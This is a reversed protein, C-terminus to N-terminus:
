FGARAAKADLTEALSRSDVGSPHDAPWIVMVVFLRDGRLFLYMDYAIGGDLPNPQDPTGFAGFLAGMDIVMHFGGGVDGLGSGDLGHVDRYAIGLQQADPEIGQLDAESINRLADFGGSREFEDLAAQPLRMTASGVIAGFDGSEMDGSTFANLTVSLDGLENSVTQTTEELKTFGSPLDSVDLLVQALAPDAVASSGIDGSAADLLDLPSLSGFLSAASTPTSDSGTETPIAVDAPTDSPIETAPSPAAPTGSTVDTPRSPDHVGSNPDRVSTNAPPTSKTASGGGGGSCAAGLLLFPLLVLILKRLM